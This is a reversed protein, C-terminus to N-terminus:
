LTYLCNIHVNFDHFVSKYCLLTFLINGNAYTYNIIQSDTLKNYVTLGSKQFFMQQYTKKKKKALFWCLNLKNKSVQSILFM